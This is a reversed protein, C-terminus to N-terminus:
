MVAQQAQGMYTLYRGSTYSGWSTWDSGGRSITFMAQANYHPDTLKSASYEPHALINIQWLGYSDEIDTTGNGPNHAAPNGGSEALAIAVALILAQGSLGVSKAYAAIQRASLTAGTSSSANGSANGSAQMADPTLIAGLISGLRGTLGVEILLFGILLMFGLKVGNGVNGM